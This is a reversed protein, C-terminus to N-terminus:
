FPRIVLHGILLRSFLWGGVDVLLMTLINGNVSTVATLLSKVHMCYVANVCCTVM